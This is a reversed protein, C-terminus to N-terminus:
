PLVEGSSVQQLRTCSWNFNSRSNTFDTRCTAAHVWIQGNIGAIKNEKWTDPFDKSSCEAYQFALTRTAEPTFGHFMDSCTRLYRSLDNEEM